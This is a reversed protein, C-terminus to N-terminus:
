NLAIVPQNFIHLHEDSGRISIEVDIEVITVDPVVHHASPHVLVVDDVVHQFRVHFVCLVDDVDPRVDPAVAQGVGPAARYGGHPSELWLLFQEVAQFLVDFLVPVDDPEMEEVVTQTV